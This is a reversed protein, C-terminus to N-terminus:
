AIHFDMECGILFRLERLYGCTGARVCLTQHLIGSQAQDRLSGAEAGGDTFANSLGVLPLQDVIILDAEAQGALASKFRM